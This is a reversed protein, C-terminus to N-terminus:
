VALSGDANFIALRVDYEPVPDDTTALAILADRDAAALNGTAVWADLMAANAPRSLNIGDSAGKLVDLIALSSDRLPHAATTSLDEIKSRLGSAAAWGAFDSRTVTGLKTRGVSLAAALAVTDPVLAQLAPDASIAARIETPTM